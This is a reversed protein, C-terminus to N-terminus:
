DDTHPGSGSTDSFAREWDQGGYFLRLITVRDDDVVFAVTMRREFGAIRLGPRIDHRDQGRESALDFGLCWAEIREIYSLAVSPSAADAIWNYLRVLDDRAEPAFIVTRRRM